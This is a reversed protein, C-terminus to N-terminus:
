DPTWEGRKIENQMKMLDKKREEDAQDLRNRATSVSCDGVRAVHKWTKTDSQFDGFDREVEADQWTLTKKPRGAQSATLGLLNTFTKAKMPGDLGNLTEAEEAGDIASVILDALDDPIQERGRLLEALRRMEGWGM